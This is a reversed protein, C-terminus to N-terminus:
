GIIFRDDAAGRGFGRRHSDAQVRNRRICDKSNLKSNAKVTLAWPTGRMPVNRPELYTRNLEAALTGAEPRQTGLTM